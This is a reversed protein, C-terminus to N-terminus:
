LWLVCAAEVAIIIAICVAIPTKVRCFAAVIASAFATFGTLVLLSVVTCFTGLDAFSGNPVRNRVWASIAFIMIQTVVIAVLSLWFTTIGLAKREM